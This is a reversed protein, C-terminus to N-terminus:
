KRRVQAERWKLWDGTNMKDPDRQAVAKTANIRTVPALQAEPKPKTAGANKRLQALTYADHLLKVVLPNDINSVADQPFGYEVAFRSVSANKEPGWGKIERELVANGEQLRRSKETQEQLAQAQVKKSVGDAAQSRQDQLTRMQRELKAGQAPDAEYLRDWDLASYKAIEADIARVGAIEEVFQHAIRSQEQVQRREQSLQQTKQTFAAQMLRENRHREIDAKKGKLKVGDLEDEIDDEESPEPEDAALAEIVRGDIDQDTPESAPASTDAVPASDQLEPQEM